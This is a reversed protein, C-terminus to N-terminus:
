RKAATSPRRLRDLAPGLRALDDVLVAGIRGLVERYAPMARGGALVATEAPLAARLSMLEAPLRADDEPYVLSLAVARARLQRAAGAIELAPLSTGLQIAQWGLNTALAGVLWAGLEHLQGAPTGVLLVPAGESGGFPRTLTALFGRLVGGAFHEQAATIRGERWGDGLAQALPAVLRQLAGQVGLSQTGRLLGAEFAGPDLARIATLCEEVLAGAAPTAPAAAGAVSRSAAGPLGAASAVLARLKPDPLRAVQGISHGAQTAERLLRLRELDAESYLRRQTATRRPEVARYRQEWIRLVYPSLGTRRAALQIPFHAEVM